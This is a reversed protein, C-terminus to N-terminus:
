RHHMAASVLKILINEALTDDRLACSFYENTFQYYCCHCFFSFYSCILSIESVRQDVSPFRDNREKPHLSLHFGYDETLLTEVTPKIGFDLLTLPNTHFSLRYAFYGAILFPICLIPKVWRGRRSKYPNAHKSRSQLMKIKRMSCYAHHQHIALRGQRGGAQSQQTKFQSLSPSSLLILM